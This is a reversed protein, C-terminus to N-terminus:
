RALPRMTEREASMANMSEIIGVETGEGARMTLMDGTIGAEIGEADRKKKLREGKTIIIAELVEAELLNTLTTIDM